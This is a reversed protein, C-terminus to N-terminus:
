MIHGGRITLISAYAVVLRLWLGRVMRCSVKFNHLCIHLVVLSVASTSSGITQSYVFKLRNSCM